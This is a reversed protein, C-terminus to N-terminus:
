SQIGLKQLLFYICMKFIKKRSGTNLFTRKAFILPLWRLFTSYSARTTLPKTSCITTEIIDNNNSPSNKLSSKWEKPIASILWNLPNKAQIKTKIRSPLFQHNEKIINCISIIGKNFSSSYLISKRNIVLNRNNWIIKDPVNDIDLM